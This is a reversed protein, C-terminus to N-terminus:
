KPARGCTAEIRVQNPGLRAIKKGRRKRGDCLKSRSFMGIERDGPPGGAALRFRRFQDSGSIAAVDITVEAFLGLRHITCLAKKHTNNLIGSTPREEFRGRICCGVCHAAHQLAYVNVLMTAGLTPCM